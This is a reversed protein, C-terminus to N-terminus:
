VKAKEERKILLELKNKKYINVFEKSALQDIENVFVELGIKRSEYLKRMMLMCSERSKRKAEQKLWLDYLETKPKVMEMVNKETIPISQQKTLEAKLHEQFVEAEHM